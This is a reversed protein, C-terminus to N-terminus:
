ARADEVNPQVAPRAVRARLPGGANAPYTRPALPAASVTRALRELARRPTANTENRGTKTLGSRTEAVIM